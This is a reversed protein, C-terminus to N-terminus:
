TLVNTSFLRLPLPHQRPPPSSLLPLNMQILNRALTAQLSHTQRSNRVPTSDKPATSPTWRLEYVNVTSDDSAAALYKHDASLGTYAVGEPLPLELRALEQGTRLDWLFVRNSTRGTLLKGDPTALITHGNYTM